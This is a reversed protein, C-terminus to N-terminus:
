VWGLESLFCDLDSSINMTEAFINYVNIVHVIDHRSLALRMQKRDKFWKKLGVYGGFEFEVVDSPVNDFYQSSNIYVRQGEVRYDSVVNDGSGNFVIGLVNNPITNGTHLDLLKKGFAVMRTFVDCDHPLPIRPFDVSLLIRYKQRYADSGLVAYVYCFLDIMSFCGATHSQSFPAFSEGTATVFKQLLAESVNAKINGNDEDYIYMPCVVPIGKRSYHLRNDIMHRVIQVHSWCEGAVVQRNIVLGLNEHGIFNHMVKYRNRKVLTRDYNIYRLDFPRYEYPQNYTTSFPILSVLNEDDHTKVGGDNIPFLENLSVGSSYFQEDSADKPKLFYHPPRPTINRWQITRFSNTCLLQYKEERSGYFEGYFVSASNNNTKKRKIFFSICIGQTIRDFVNEDRNGTPAQERGYLNGHLDLIYIESFDRLLQWRMGRFTLNDTYSHPTVYAIIADEQEKVIEQALRTFKVYDDNIVKPNRERLKDSSNPELKYDDMLKMIWAGKNVSDARYPPNGIVINIRGRQAQAAGNLERFFIDQSTEKGMEQTIPLLSDALYIRLRARSDFLYGTEKLIMALKMHALAYPPMMLEIGTLRNLLDRGVFNSWSGYKTLQTSKQFDKKAEQIIRRLFTGTGVAPDLISINSSAFGDSCGFKDHLLESVTRTMFDVVPAPTYYVGKRKKQEKEYIDLFQEYFYVVPDEKGNGTQRNFDRLISKIDANKLIEILDILNLEDFYAKGNALYSKGLLEKLFPNTDPIHQFANDLEFTTADPNMCRASLLGYVLTQAYVDAFTEPSQTGPMRRGYRDFLLHAFGNSAETEYIDRLDASIELAKGALAETLKQTNRVVSGWASAFTKGWSEIWSSNDVTEPWSLHKIRSIFDELNSYDEVAPSSSLVRIQSVNKAQPLIAAISLTRFHSDGHFCWFLLNNCSWTKHETNKKKPILGNIIKRLVTIPLKKSDFDVFFIAWPQGKTLPRLQKITKISAYYQSDVGLEEATFDYLLDDPEDLFSIDIPWHLVEACYTIASSFDRVKKIADPM